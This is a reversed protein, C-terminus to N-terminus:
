VIIPKENKVRYFKYNLTYPCHNAPHILEASKGWKSCVMPISLMDDKPAKVVVGSHEIDGSISHIYLVIDGALVKDAPIEEYCDDTIIKSIERSETISTRRSAFTLGHCNYIPTPDSRVIVKDYKSLLALGFALESASLENTQSNDIDNQDRTQLALTRAAGVGILEPPM